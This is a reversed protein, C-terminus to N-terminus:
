DLRIGKVFCTRRDEVESFSSDMNEYYYYIKQGVEVNDLTSPYLIPNEYDWMLFMEEGNDTQIQLDFDDVLTVIGEKCIIRESIYEVVIRNNQNDDRELVIGLFTEEDDIWSLHGYHRIYEEVNDDRSGWFYCQQNNKLLMNLLVLCDESYLKDSYYTAIITFDGNDMETCAIEGNELKEAITNATNPKIRQSKCSAGILLISFSLCMLLFQKYINRM